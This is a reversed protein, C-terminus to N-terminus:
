LFGRACMKIGFSTRCGSAVACWTTGSSIERVPSSRQITTNDATNYGWSWLSGDTKVAAVVCTGTGVACWLTSSSIERVPSCSVTTSNNALQGNNNGGWSWLSGDTKIASATFRNGTVTCWNTSKSIEQVPSSRTISTNDGVSGCCNVGWGWLTLDTKIGLVSCLSAVKVWVSCTIEKVPSSRDISTNDGVNGYANIGWLWLSGDTKLGAFARSASIQFWNTSSTIERVPSSRSTATNDGLPGGVNAGWTWLSGDTKIAASNVDAISVRCWNTSSTTEQIPSSRAVTENNGLSGCYNRGWAWLSGDTKIAAAHKYKSEIQCWNASCTIERVPSSRAVTSNDGTLGSINQGWAWLQPYYCLAESSADTIWSIGDSLYYHCTDAVYILRGSNFTACPLCSSTSVCAVIQGCLINSAWTLQCCALASLGGAALRSDIQCKLIKATIPM